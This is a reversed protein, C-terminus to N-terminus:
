GEAHTRLAARPPMGLHDLIFGAVAEADNLDLVPLPMDPLPGDSAVAVVTPDDVFRLPKGLSPRHIELKPHAHRKFGEVLLLDVPSLRPILEEIEPEPAGRNEHLLAWRPGAAIVVEVAGADRHRHSDKGPKDLDVDHHTHKITSVTYGRGILAPLLREMLTTKGNGSWGALGFVKM